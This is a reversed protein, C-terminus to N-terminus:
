AYNNDKNNYSAQRHIDESQKVADSAQAGGAAEVRACNACVADKNGSGGRYSRKKRYRRALNRRTKQKRNSKRRHRRSQKRRMRRTRKKQSRRHTRKRRRSGGKIGRQALAQQRENEQMKGIACNGTCEPEQFTRTM